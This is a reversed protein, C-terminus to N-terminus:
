VVEQSAHVRYMSVSAQGPMTGFLRSTQPIVGYRALLKRIRSHSKLSLNNKKTTSKSPVWPGLLHPEVDNHGQVFRM